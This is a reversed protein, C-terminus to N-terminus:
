IARAYTEETGIALPLWAQNNFRLRSGVLAEGLLARTRQQLSYNCLVRKRLPKTAAVGETIRLWIVPPMSGNADFVGGMTTCQFCLRLQFIPNGEDRACNLM